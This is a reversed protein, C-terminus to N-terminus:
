VIHTIKIDDEYKRIIETIEDQTTNHGKNPIRLFDYLCDGLYSEPIFYLNDGVYEGEIDYATNDEDMWIFHGFPACWCVTGRNFTSKLIHAFHYCYGAMFQKRLVESSESNTGQHLMFKSIFGLVETKM